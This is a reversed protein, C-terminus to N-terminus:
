DILRELIKICEGLGDLWPGDFAPTTVFVFIIAPVNNKHGGFIL